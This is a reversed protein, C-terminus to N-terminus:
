KRKIFFTQHIKKDRFDDPITTGKLDDVIYEELESHNIKFDRRNNSFIIMGGPRLCNAVKRILWGHDKQVEWDQEMKKSNSFTPPDLIILDYTEPHSKIFELIDAEIFSHHFTNLGNLKYNEKGWDLYKGSLDVNTTNAGAFAAAVGLSCTYSFLNLVKMGEELELLKSRLPRHDLFLGTDLFDFLNVRFKLPGEEVIETQGTAQVKVYQIKGKQKFREKHIQKPLPYGLETLADKLELSHDAKKPDSDIEKLRHWIVVKDNYKDIIFPYDPIDKDYLRFAGLNQKKAWKTLHKHNKRLRGAIASM